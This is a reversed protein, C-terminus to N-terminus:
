KIIKIIIILTKRWEKSFTRYYRYSQYDLGHALKM